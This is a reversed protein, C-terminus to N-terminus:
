RQWMGFYNGYSTIKKRLVKSGNDTIKSWDPDNAGQAKQM